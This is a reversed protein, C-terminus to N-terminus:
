GLLNQSKFEGTQQTKNLERRQHPVKFGQSKLKADITRLESNIEKRIGIFDM